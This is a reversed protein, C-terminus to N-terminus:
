EGRAKLMADAQEYAHKGLKEFHGGEIISTRTMCEFLAPSANMGQLAMGAFWDRLTMGGSSGIADGTFHLKWQPFAPINNKIDEIGKEM